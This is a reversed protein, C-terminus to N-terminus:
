CYNQSCVLDIKYKFLQFLPYFLDSVVWSSFLPFFGFAGMIRVRCCLQSSNNKNKHLVVSYINFRLLFCSNKSFGIVASKRSLNDRFKSYKSFPPFLFFVCKKIIKILFVSHLVINKFSNIICTM